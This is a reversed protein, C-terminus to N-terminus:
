RFREGLWRIVAAVLEGQAARETFTHNAEPFFARDVRGRLAPFVEFLQDEHNYRHGHAGSYVLFVAVGRDLLTTLQREFDAAPPATRGEGEGEPGSVRRMGVQIAWRVGGIAGVDAVKARVARVKAQRTIYAPPEVLVVGAVREDALATALANDAGACLGFLVYRPAAMGDMAARADAVASERFSAADSSVTSDGIGGLDLRLAPFGLDAAQRGLVVHLRHPGVRHLLGANLIVLAPAGSRAKVPHTVIGVLQGDRGLRLAEERGEGAAQGPIADSTVGDPM